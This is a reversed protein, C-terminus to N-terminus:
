PECVPKYPVPYAESSAAWVKYRTPRHGRPFKRLQFQALSGNHLAGRM